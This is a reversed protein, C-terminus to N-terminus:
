GEFWSVRPELQDRQSKVLQNDLLVRSWALDLLLGTFHGTMAIEVIQTGNEAAISADPQCPFQHFSIELLEQLIKERGSWIASTAM